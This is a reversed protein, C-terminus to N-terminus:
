RSRLQEISKKIDAGIGQPVFPARPRIPENGVIECGAERVTRYYRSKSDYVKGDVPNRVDSLHDSIVMPAASAERRYQSAPILHGTKRDVIYRM